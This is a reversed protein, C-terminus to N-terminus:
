AGSARSGQWCPIIWLQSIHSPNNGKWNNPPRPPQTICRWWQKAAESYFTIVRNHFPLILQGTSHVLLFGSTVVQLKEQGQTKFHFTARLDTTTNAGSYIKPVSSYHSKLNGPKKKFGVQAFTL